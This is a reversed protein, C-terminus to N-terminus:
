SWILGEERSLKWLAGDSIDNADDVFKCVRNTIEANPKEPIIKKLFTM